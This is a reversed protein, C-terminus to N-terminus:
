TSTDVEDWLENRILWNLAYHREAVVGGDLDDLERGNLWADRVAWHYRYILDAEDLLQSTPRLQASRALQGAEMDILPRLVEPVDIQNEPPELSPVHGIAWLLAYMAEYRWSFAADDAPSPTEDDLYELESATAVKRIRFKEVLERTWEHDKADAKIAVVALAMARHAVEEGTRRFVEVETEIVPLDEYVPVCERRLRAISRARRDVAEQPLLTRGPM